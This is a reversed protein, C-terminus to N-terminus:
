PTQQTFFYLTGDPYDAFVSLDQTLTELREQAQDGYLRELQYIVSDFLILTAKNERFLQQARDDQDDGFRAFHPNSNLQVLESIDYTPRGTHFLLVASENSVLAIEHPIDKAAKITLSEQYYRSTFGHGSRHYTSLIETSQPLFSILLVIVPLYLLNLWTMQPWTKIILSIIIFVLIIGALQVPLLMRTNIDPQPMTFVFAIVLTILYVIIFILLISGFLLNRDKRYDDSNGKRVGVIAFVALTIVVIALLALINRQTNYPLIPLFNSFPIWSWVTGILDIRLPAMEAWIESSYYILRPTNEQFSLWIFWTAIPIVSVILYLLVDTLRRKWNGQNLVLLTIIGTGLFAIGVYRSLTALSALLAGIVLLYIKRKEIYLMVLILGTFGLFIFLAESMAGSYMVLLEPILMITATLLVALWPSKTIYYFTLGIILIVLAFLAVNLWRAADLLNFGVSGLASLVLSYVPPYHSLPKFEGSPNYLGFGRGQIFNKAVYIYATSDSFAWPGWKTSYIILVGGVLGLIIIATIVWRNNGIFTEHLSNRM